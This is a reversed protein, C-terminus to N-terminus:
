FRQQRKTTGLRWFGLRTASRMGGSASQWTMDQKIMQRVDVAKPHYMNVNDKINKTKKLCLSSTYKANLRKLLNQHKILMHLARINREMENYTVLVCM